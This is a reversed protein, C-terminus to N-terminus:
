TLGHRGLDLGAQDQTVNKSTLCEVEHDKEGRGLGKGTSGSLAVICGTTGELIGKGTGQGAINRDVDHVPTIPATNADNSRIIVSVTQGGTTYAGDLRTLPHGHQRTDEGVLDLPNQGELRRFFCQGMNTHIEGPGPAGDLGGDGCEGRGVGNGLRPRLRRFGSGDEPRQGGIGIVGQQRCELFQAHETIRVPVMLSPIQLLLVPDDVFVRSEELCQEVHQNTAPQDM